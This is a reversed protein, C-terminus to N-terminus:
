SYPRNNLTGKQKQQLFSLAIISCLHVHIRSFSWPNQCPRPYNTLNLGRMKKKDKLIEVVGQIIKCPHSYCFLSVAMLIDKKKFQSAVIIELM